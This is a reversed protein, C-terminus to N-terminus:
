GDGQATRIGGADRTNVVGWPEALWVHGRSLWLNIRWAVYMEGAGM